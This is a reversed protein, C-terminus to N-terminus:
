RLLMIMGSRIERGASRLDIIYYYAGIDLPKRNLTGDWPYRYGTSFYVRQGWRNFIQVTATEYDPLGPIVWADNLGDNNPSFANPIKLGTYVKVWVSDSSRCGKADIATLLYQQTSPPTSIPNLQTASSLFSSPSWTYTATTDKISPKLMIGNGKEIILDPGADLEPAAMINVAKSTEDSCGSAMTLKLRVTYNGSKSYHKLPAADNSVTGDGFTWSRTIAGANTPLVTEDKFLLLDGVCVATDPLSLRAKVYEFDKIKRTVSDKCGATTTTVLTVPFTNGMAYIHSGDRTSARMGDGFDWNSNLLTPSQGNLTSTNKFTAVGGPMCVIGPLNFDAVPLANILVPKITDGACGDSTRVVQLKVSYTGPATYMKKSLSNNDTTGDGFDWTWRNSVSPSVDSFVATDNECVANVQFDVTAGRTVQVGIHVLETKTCNDIQPSLITVPIDYNGDTSFQCDVPAEYTYYTRFNIVETKILVPTGIVKEVSPSMNTVKDFHWTIGTLPYITKLYITFPTKACTYTSATNNFKNQIESIATLNNIYTGANYGYSELLGLGYTIATFGADSQVTHQMPIVPLEKIVVHYGPLAPHPYLSDFSNNGDINLTKLGATPVILTLYNHNIKEKNTSYFTIQKISQEIPSLFIMEPDGEGISGCASGSFILQAVTIPNNATIYDASGSTFEYYFNNTLGTLLIGNKRVQTGPFRVYVRYKNTNLKSVGLTSSTPATLYRVGWASAPPIQQMIFDGGGLPSSPVCIFTRSSGSFVAIPHCIGDAGVISEIKTGSLDYGFYATFISGMLNYIQGKELTVEFPIGPSKGGLTLRSPTIRIKTNDSGAIVYLWSYCNTDYAQETNLSFYTYGYVEVPILMTAGSTTMGYIHSYAVIPVSSEIHIARDSIGEALIRCDDIGVKPILDSSIVTRAPISYTRVWSTNSISVTVTAAEDASLYLVMNQNNADTSNEFLFNHGYGVWFEKGKNSFNQSNGAYACLLLALVLTLKV